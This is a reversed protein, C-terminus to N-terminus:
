SDSTAGLNVPCAPQVRTECTHWVPPFIRTHVAGSTNTSNTVVYLFINFVVYSNVYGGSAFLSLTFKSFHEAYYAHPINLIQM